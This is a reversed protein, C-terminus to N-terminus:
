WFTTGHFNFEILLRQGIGPDSQACLVRCQGFAIDLRQHRKGGVIKCIKRLKRKEHNKQLINLPYNDCTKNYEKRPTAHWAAKQISETILETAEDIDDQSRLPMRISRFTSIWNNWCQKNFLNNKLQQISKGGNFFILQIQTLQNRTERTLGM